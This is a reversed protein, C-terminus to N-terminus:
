RELVLMGAFIFIFCIATVWMLNTVPPRKKSDTKLYHRWALVLVLLGVGVSLSSSFAGPTFGNSIPGFAFM